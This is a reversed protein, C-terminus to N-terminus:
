RGLGTGGVILDVLIDVSFPKGEIVRFYRTQKNCPVTTSGESAVGADFSHLSLPRMVYRPTFWIDTVQRKANKHM